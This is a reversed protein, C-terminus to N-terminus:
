NDNTLKKQTDTNKYFLDNLKKMEFDLNKLAVQLQRIEKNHGEVSANLRM